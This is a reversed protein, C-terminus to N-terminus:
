KSAKTCVCVCVCESGKGPSPLCLKGWRLSMEGPCSFYICLLSKHTLTSGFVCHTKGYLEETLEAPESLVHDM